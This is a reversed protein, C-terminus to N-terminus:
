LRATMLPAHQTEGKGPVALLFSARMRLNHTAGSRFSVAANM